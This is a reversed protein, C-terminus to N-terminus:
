TEQQTARKQTGTGEDVPVAEEAGAATISRMAVGLLARLLVRGVGTGVVATAVIVLDGQSTTVVTDIDAEAEAEAEMDGEAEAAVHVTRGVTAMGVSTIEVGAIVGEIVVLIRAVVLALDRNATLHLTHGSETTSTKGVKTADIVQPLPHIISVVIGVMMGVM